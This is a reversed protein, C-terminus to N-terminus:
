RAAGNRSRLYADLSLRPAAPGAQRPTDVPAQVARIEVRGISIQVAAAPSGAAGQADRRSVAANQSRALLVAPRPRAAQMPALSAGARAATAAAPVPECSGVAMPKPPSPPAEGLRQDDPETHGRSAPSRSSSSHWSSSRLPVSERSSVLADIRRATAQHQVGSVRVARDRRQTESADRRAIMPMPMPMPVPVPRSLLLVAQPAAPGSHAQAAVAEDRRAPAPAEDAWRATMPAQRAAPPAASRGWPPSSSAGRPESADGGDVGRPAAVPRGALPEFLSRQRRELVPLWGAGRGLLASFYDSM